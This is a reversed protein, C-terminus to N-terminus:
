EYERKLLVVHIITMLKGIRGRPSVQSDVAVKSEQVEIVSDILATSFLGSPHVIGLLEEKPIESLRVCKLLDSIDEKGLHNHEKWRQVARFIHIEDVVFTDRSILAQLDEQPLSLISDDALVM